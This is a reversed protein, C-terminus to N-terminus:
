STVRSHHIAPVWVKLLEAASAASTTASLFAVADSGSHWRHLDDIGVAGEEKVYKQMLEM